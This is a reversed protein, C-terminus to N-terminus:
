HTQTALGAQQRAQTIMAAFRPDGRLSALDEDKGMAVIDLPSQRASNQLYQFAKEKHGAVAEACAYNYWADPLWEQNKSAATQVAEDLMAKAKSYQKEYVLDIAVMEFSGLTEGNQEGYLKRHLEYARRNLAESQTYKKELKYVHAVNGITIITNFSDPGQVRVRDQLVRKYLAEAKSYRSEGLYADALQEMSNLTPRYNEGYRRLKIQLAHRALVEADHYEGASLYTRTLRYMATLADVHEPGVVRREIELLKKQIAEADGYRGLTDYDEGLDAGRRLTLPHEEGLIRRSIEYSQQSLPLDKSYEDLHAYVGGLNDMAMLTDPSEPGLVHRSLEFARLALPEAESFKQALVEALALSSMSRITIANEEGFKRRTIELAKSCLAVSELYKDQGRLAHDLGLMTEITKPDDPGLTHQRLDLARELHKQAEPYAGLDLYTQGLTQRIAGEVEPQDKFKGEVRQAARDLATRVKIDPDPSVGQSAQTSSSAQALMDNQLFDVVAQARAAESEARREARRTRVAEYGSIAIGVVLVLFVAGVGAVLVKNRRAFKKLQYATSAPKAAIPRDELYRKIDAALEAASGYRRTKDKELAKAVITEIDGRYTRNISSLPAPDIQQITQVAEHLHRSLQYPLKGALLEYLIVGLAYVDSRTDVTFPDALVQEPSMYPLTGLMQGVDTQRTAQVDSDTARALGFDLIKPQGSEEVLINGPKLDRHIIGRQHAHEVAECIKIFLALRDRLGLNKRKAYIVLPQGDIMEMAFFPQPGLGTEISGADYIQAIGPHHLRGLTQCELEFRRLLESSAWGSRIMKLAVRRRPHDQEAEYVAGMGGEGLLRVIRYRGIVPPIRKPTSPEPPPGAEALTADGDIAQQQAEDPTPKERM